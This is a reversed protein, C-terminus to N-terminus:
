RPPFLGLGWHPCTGASRKVTITHGGRSQWARPRKGRSVLATGGHPCTPRHDPPAHAWETRADTWVTEEVLRADRRSIREHVADDSDRVTAHPHALRWEKMGSLVEESLERWHHEMAEDM